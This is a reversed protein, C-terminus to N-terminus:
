TFRDCCSNRPHNKAAGRLVTVCNSLIRAREAADEMERCCWCSDNLVAPERQSSELNEFLRRKLWRRWLAVVKTKGESDQGAEEPTGLPHDKRKSLVAHSQRQEINRFLKGPGVEEVSCLTSSLM